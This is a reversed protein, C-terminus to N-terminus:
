AAIAADLVGTLAAVLITCRLSPVEDVPLFSSASLTSMM